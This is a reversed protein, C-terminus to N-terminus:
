FLPLRLVADEIVAAAFSGRIQIRVFPNRGPPLMLLPTFVIRMRQPIGIVVVQARSADDSPCSSIKHKKFSFSHQDLSKLRALLSPLVGKNRAAWAPNRLTAMNKYSFPAASSTRLFSLM